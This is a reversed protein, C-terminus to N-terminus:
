REPNTDTWPAASNWLGPPHSPSKSVYEFIRAPNWAPQDPVALQQGMGSVQGGQGQTFMMMPSTTRNADVQGTSVPPSMSQGSFSMQSAHMSAADSQQTMPGAPNMAPRYSPSSRPPTASSSVPSGYPFSPKLVFPRRTDMSFAERVADIQKQLEPMPWAAMVKEVLRMQRQFFDRSDTNLDPDPSTM